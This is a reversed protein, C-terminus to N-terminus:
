FLAMSWSVPRLGKALVHRQCGATGVAIRSESEVRV